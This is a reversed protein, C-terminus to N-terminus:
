DASGTALSAVIFQRAIESLPVNAADALEALRDFDPRALSVGVRPSLGTSLSIIPSDAHTPMGFLSVRIL